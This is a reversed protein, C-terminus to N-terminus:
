DPTVARRVPAPAARAKGGPASAGGILRDLTQPLTTDRLQASEAVITGDPGVLFDFPLFSVGIAQLIANDFQEAAYGHQWPMPHPPKLFRLATAPADDLSVSVIELKDKYKAYAAHLVPLEAVCPACWTAWFNVLTFKGPTGAINVPRGGPKLAPFLAVQPAKGMGLPRDLAVSSALLPNLPGRPFERQLRDWAALGAERRSPVSDRAAFAQRILASYRVEARAGPAAEQRALERRVRQLVTTDQYGAGISALGAAHARLRMVIQEWSAWEAFAAAPSAPDLSDAIATATARPFKADTGDLWGTLGIAVGLYQRLLPDGENRWLALLRASEAEGRRRAAATDARNAPDYVRAMADEHAVTLALLRGARSSSDRVVVRGPASDSLQRARDVRVTARGRVVPALSASGEFGGAAWDLVAPDPSGPNAATEGYQLVGEVQYTLSGSGAEAPLDATWVGPRLRQMPVPTAPVTSGARRVPRVTPKVLSDARWPTAALRVEMDLEGEDVLVLVERTVHLPARLTLRAMGRFPTALVFRGTSDTWADALPTPLVGAASLRVAAQAVPRDGAGTLRGAIRALPQARLPMAACLLLVAAVLERM